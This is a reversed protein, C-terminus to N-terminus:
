RDLDLDEESDACVAVDGLLCLGSGIRVSYVIRRQRGWRRRRMCWVCLESLVYQTCSRQKSGDVM